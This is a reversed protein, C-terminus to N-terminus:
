RFHAGSLSRVAAHVFRSCVGTFIYKVVIESTTASLPDLSTLMANQPDIGLKNARCHLLDPHYNQMKMKPRRTEIQSGSKYNAGPIKLANALSNSESNNEISDLAKRVLKRYQSVM